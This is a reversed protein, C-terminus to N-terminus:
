VAVLRGDEVVVQGRKIVIRVLNAGFRYALHRHDPADLVVLDAQKGARISGIREARRLAFAANITAAALAEGPQLRLHLCALGVVVGMSDIASSGPNFDSALAVAVGAEVLRRSDAPPIRLSFTTGPLLTGITSSRALAQVGEDSIASLHDASAAGMEAALEAAGSPAFEDAHLRIGLGHAAGAELVRRTQEPTYVGRECFVDAFEALRERAVAPIMERVLLDVYGDRDRAYEPPFEHAGLFTPVVDIPHDKAARAIARLQKLEHETALGYGSKAEATTTGHLLFRDLRARTLAVLEDESAARTARVSSAIGGGSAAIEQYTRGALRMAFEDHRWGAFPLHTHSDVFGPIVVRGRCDIRRAGPAPALAAAADAAPGVWVVDAGRMAVSGPAIRGIEALDDRRRPGDLGPAEMTLIENANELLLDCSIPM